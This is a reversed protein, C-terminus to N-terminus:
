GIRDAAAKMAAEDYGLANLATALNGARALAAAPSM